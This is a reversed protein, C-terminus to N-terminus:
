KPVTNISLSGPKDPSSTNMEIKAINKPANPAPWAVVNPGSM